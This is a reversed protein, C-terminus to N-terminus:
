SPTWALWFVHSSILKLCVAWRYWLLAVPATGAHWLAHADLIWLVPPFDGLELLLLLMVFVISVIGKWVYPQKRWVRKAWWLWGVANSAGAINFFNFVYWLKQNSMSDPPLKKMVWVLTQNWCTENWWTQALESLKQDNGPHWQNTDRLETAWSIPSIGFHPWFLQMLQGHLSANLKLGKHLHLSNPRNHEM